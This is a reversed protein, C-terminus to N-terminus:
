AIGAKMLIYYLAFFALVTLSFWSLIRLSKSPQYQKKVNKGLIAKLNLFGLVPATIFSITTALDVLLKMKGSFESILVVAGTVLLVIWLYNLKRLTSAKNARPIIAGIVPNLVRPYADLVTLTTSFMTALAATAIIVFAWSGISQTYLAFFQNAFQTGGADFSEGSPYMVLAGLGLFILSMIVTGFYGLNFDFLVEKLKPRYGTSKIKALTWLSNWVSIDIASPMWGVLAILFAVNSVNWEFSNSQAFNTPEMSTLAVVFAILTSLSLLLIIVKMLRDLAKYHGVLVIVACLLLLFITIQVTSFSSPFISNIIGVTVSTVAAQITFMTGVTLLLFLVVAWKGMRRYGDILSEGTAIAYRPGFQFFPYKILNAILLVGALQFGFDAGARTSQVLHSVGIAAGAWMLGPGISKWNLKRM